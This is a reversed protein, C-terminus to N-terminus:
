HIIGMPELLIYQKIPQPLPLQKLGLECSCCMATRIAFRALHQLSRPITCAAVLSDYFMGHKKYTEKPIADRWKPTSMLYGYSNVMVEVTKPDDHYIELLKYFQDPYIRVTGYNLVLQLCRYPECYPRMQIMNSTYQLAPNGSMDVIKPDAGADLLIHMLTQDCNWSAKHLATKHNIDQLNPNAGYDLLMRCVLHHQESYTQVHDDMASFAATMLPTEMHANFANVDAGHTIYLGVLESIGHRAATHLPTDEDINQSPMNVDAGQLILQRACDVSEQTICYHLPTYGSRSMSNVKVGWNLLLAVCDAHSMACAVHLPTKGNPKRNVAAGSQLLVLASEIANNMMCIHIGMAWSFKPKINCLWSGKNYSALVGSEDEVEFIADIDLNSTRLIEDVEAADNRQLASLFRHMM